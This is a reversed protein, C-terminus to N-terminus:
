WRFVMEGNMSVVVRPLGNTEGRRSNGLTEELLPDGWLGKSPDEFKKAAIRNEIEGVFASLADKFKLYTTLRKTDLTVVFGSYMGNELVAQIQSEAALAVCIAIADDLTPKKKFFDFM